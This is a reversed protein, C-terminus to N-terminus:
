QAYASLPKRLRWFYRLDSRVTEVELLSGAGCVALCLLLMGSHTLSFLIDKKM